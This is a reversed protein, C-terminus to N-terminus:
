CESEGIEGLGRDGEGKTSRCVQCSGAQLPPSQVTHVVETRVIPHTSLPTDVRSKKQLTPNHTHIKPDANEHIRRPMLARLVVSGRASRALGSGASRSAVRDAPEDRDVGEEELYLTALVEAGAAKTVSRVDSSARSGIVAPARM